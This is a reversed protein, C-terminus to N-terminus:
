KVVIVLSDYAEKSLPIVRCSEGGNVCRLTDLYSIYMEYDSGFSEKCELALGPTCKILHSMNSHSM